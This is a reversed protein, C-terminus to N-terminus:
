STRIRLAARHTKPITSGLCCQWSWCRRLSVLHRKDRYARLIRPTDREPDFIMLVFSVKPLLEAPLAAEIQQMISVLLPCAYECTTSFMALVQVKGQLAGLRIHQETATIWTSTVQYLSTETFASGPLEQHESHEPHAMSTTLIGFIVALSICGMVSLYPKHRRM